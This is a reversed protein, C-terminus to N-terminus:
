IKNKELNNIPMKIYFCAGAETNSVWIEGKCHEVVITRSIYLGLGTGRTDDKTSFYPDFIKELHEDPVGGANDEIRVIQFKEEELIEISIEPEYIRKETLIDYANKIINLFVQMLENPSINVTTTVDYSKHVKINKYKLTKGIIGLTREMIESLLAESKSINFKYFNRFDNITKSLFQSQENINELLELFQEKDFMDLDLYVKLNGAVTSISSLPQRWQHAIMSILEGMAALKSQHILLQEQQIRKGEEEKAKKEAWSLATVMNTFSDLLIRIEGTSQAEYMRNINVVDLLQGQEAIEKVIDSLIEVPYTAKKIISSLLFLTSLTVIIALFISTIEVKRLFSFSELERHEVIVGWQLFKMVPFYSIMYSFDNETYSVNKSHGSYFGSLDDMSVKTFISQDKLNSLINQEKDVIYYNDNEMLLNEIQSLLPNLFIQVYIYGVTVLSRDLLPYLLYIYPLTKDPGAFKISTTGITSNVLAISISKEMNKLHKQLDRSYRVQVVGNEDLTHSLDVTSDPGIYYIDGFISDNTRLASFAESLSKLFDLELLYYNASYYYYVGDDVPQRSILDLREIQRNIFEDVKYSITRSLTLNKENKTLHLATRGFNLTTFVQLLFILLFLIITPAILRHRLSKFFWQNIRDFLRM